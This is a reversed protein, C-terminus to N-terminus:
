IRGDLKDKPAFPKAAAIAHRRVIKFDYGCEHKEPYRHVGCFTGGCRCPFGLLGVKKNCMDCRNKVPASPPTWATTEVAKGAALSDSTLSLSSMRISLSDPLTPATTTEMFLDSSSTTSSSSPTGSHKASAEATNTKHKKGHKTCYIKYCVSCLDMTAPSGYFGCGGACPNPTQAM